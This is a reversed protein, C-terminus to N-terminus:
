DLDFIRAECDNFAARARYERLRFDQDVRRDRANRAAQCQRAAGSDFGSIVGRHSRRPRGTVFNRAGREPEFRSPRHGANGYRDRSPQCPQDDGINQRERGFRNSAADARSDLM